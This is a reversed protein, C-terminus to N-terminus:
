FLKAASKRMFIVQSGYNQPVEFVNHTYVRTNNIGWKSEVLGDERYVWLHQIKNPESLHFYLVIDGEDPHSVIRYGWKELSDVSLRAAQNAIICDKAQSERGKLLAYNFCTLGPADSLQRPSVNLFVLDEASYACEVSQLQLAEHCYHQSELVIKQCQVELDQRRQGYTFLFRNDSIVGLGEGMVAVGGTGYCDTLFSAAIKIIDDIMLKYAGTYRRDARLEKIENELAGFPKISLPCGRKDTYLKSYHEVTRKMGELVGTIINGFISNKLSLDTSQKIEWGKKNDHIYPEAQIATPSWYPSGHVTSM